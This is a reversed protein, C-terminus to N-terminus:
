GRPDSGASTFWVPPGGVARWQNLLVNGNGVRGVDVLLLDQLVELALRLADVELDAVRDDVRMVAGARDDLLLGLVDQTLRAVVQRDLDQV